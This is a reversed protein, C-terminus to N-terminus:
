NKVVAGLDVSFTSGTIYRAEDSALFAVMASIDEPQLWAYPLLNRAALRSTADEVTPSELDPALLHYTEPNHMLPTDVNGPHITNVRIKYEGLENAMTRMLGVLGHKAAVYHSGNPFGVLGAASSTIIVSGGSGQEILHPVAAKCTHWVGTLCVDICDQWMEETLEHMKGFSWVAANACVIDLRGLEAIGAELASSLGQFSRVDAQKAVIRRDLKEVLRVTEELDAPTAPPAVNTSVRDCIDVAIIDAGESALRVAHARGQGRAAGTIFAVKNELRPM